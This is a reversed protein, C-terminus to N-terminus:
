VNEKPLVCKWPAPTPLAFRANPGDRGTAALPTEGGRKDTMIAVTVSTRLM